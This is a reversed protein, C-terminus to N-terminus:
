RSGVSGEGLIIAKEPEAHRQQNKQSEEKKKLEDEKEIANLFELPTFKKPILEGQNYLHELDFLLKGNNNKKTEDFIRKVASIKNQIENSMTSPYSCKSDEGFATDAKYCLVFCDQSGDNCAQDPYIKAETIVGPGSAFVQAFALLCFILAFFKM